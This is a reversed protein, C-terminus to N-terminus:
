VLKDLDTGNQFNEKYFKLTEFIVLYYPLDKEKGNQV